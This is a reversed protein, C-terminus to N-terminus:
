QGLVALVVGGVVMLTGAALPRTVKEIGKLWRRTVVLVLLPCSGIIPAVLLVPANSLAGYMFLVGGITGLGALAMYGLGAKPWTAAGAWQGSSVAVLVIMGSFSMWVVATEAPVGENSFHKLLVQVGSYSIAAGLSLLLGLAATRRHGISERNEASRAGRRGRSEAHQDSTTSIMVLGAGAVVGVIGFGVLLTLSEGLFLVAWLAAFLPATSALATAPGVGARHIGSYNMLRGMSFQLIGLALLGATLPVGLGFLSGPARIIAMPLVVVFGVVLAVATGARAPMHQLGIRAWVAGLAWIISASFALVGGLFVDTMYIRDVKCRGV